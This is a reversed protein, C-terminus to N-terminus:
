EVDELEREPAEGAASIENQSGQTSGDGSDGGVVSLVPMANVVLPRSAIAVHHVCYPAGIVRKGGCLRFAEDRPDGIPWKCHHSELDDFTVVQGAPPVYSPDPDVWPSVKLRVGPTWPSWKAGTEKAKEAITRAAKAKMVRKQEATPASRARSVTARDPLKLRHIKSIVANRTVGKLMGAIVSASHGDAWLKKLDAIREDTWYSSM